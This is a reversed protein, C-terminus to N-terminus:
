VFGLSELMRQVNEKEEQTPETLIEEIVGVKARQGREKSEEDSWDFDGKVVEGIIDKAATLTVKIELPAGEEEYPIRLTKENAMFSGPFVTLLKDFIEKKAIAGKAM